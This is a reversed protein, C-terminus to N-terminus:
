SQGITNFNSLICYYTIRMECLCNDTTTEDIPRGIIQWYWQSSPSQNFLAQASDDTTPDTNTIAKTSAYSTITKINNGGTVAGVFTKKARPMTVCNEFDNHITTTSPLPVVVCKWPTNTTLFTIDCTSGLVGYKNYLVTSCLQDYGNPQNGTGTQDPDFLSNARFIQRTTIGSLSALTFRQVYVFQTKLRLPLFSRGPITVIDNRLSSHRQPNSTFKSRRYRRRGSSVGRRYPMSRNRRYSIKQPM